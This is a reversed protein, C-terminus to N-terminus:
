SMKVILKQENSEKFIVDYFGVVVLPRVHVPADNKFRELDKKTAFTIEQFSDHVNQADDLASSYEKNHYRPFFLSVLGRSTKRPDVIMVLRLDGLQGNHHGPCMSVVGTKERVLISNDSGGQYFVEYAHALGKSLIKKCIEKMAKHNWFHDLCYIGEVKPCDIKGVM